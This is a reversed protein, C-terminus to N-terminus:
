YYVYDRFSFELIIFFEFFCFCFVVWKKYKKMNWGIKLMLENMEFIILKFM